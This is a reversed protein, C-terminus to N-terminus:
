AIVRRYHDYQDLDGSERMKGSEYPDVVRRVFELKACEFAAVIESLTKYSLRHHDLYDLATISLLYNLEGPGKAHRTMELPVRDAKPIYPM